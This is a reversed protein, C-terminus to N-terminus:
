GPERENGRPRVLASSPYRARVLLLDLLAQLALPALRELEALLSLRFRLAGLM